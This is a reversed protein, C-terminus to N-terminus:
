KPKGILPVLLGRFSLELSDSVSPALFIALFSATLVGGSFISGLIQHAAAETALVSFAPPSPALETEDTIDGALKHFVGGVM